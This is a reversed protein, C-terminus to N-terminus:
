PYMRFYVAKCTDKSIQVSTAIDTVVKTIQFKISDNSSSVKAVIFFNTNISTSFNFIEKTFTTKSTDTVLFTSFNDGINKNTIKDFYEFKINWPDMINSTDEIFGNIFYLYEYDFGECKTGSTIYMNKSNQMKSPVCFGNYNYTGVPCNCVNNGTCVQNNKCVITCTDKKICGFYLMTLSFFLTTIAISKIKNMM